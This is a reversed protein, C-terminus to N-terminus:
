PRTSIVGGGAGFCPASCDSIANRRREREPSPRTIVSHGTDVDSPTLAASTAHADGARRASSASPTQKGCAGSTHTSTRIAEKISGKKRLVRALRVLADARIKLSPHAALKRFAAEAAVFDRLQHELAEGPVFEASPDDDWAQLGPYYILRTPPLTEIGDARFVMLVADDGPPQRMSLDREALALWENLDDVIATAASEKRTRLQEIELERDKIVLRVGLWVVTAAPLLLLLVFAVILRRSRGLRPVEFM